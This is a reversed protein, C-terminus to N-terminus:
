SILIVHERHREKTEALENMEKGELYQMGEVQSGVYLMTGYITYGNCSDEPDPINIGSGLKEV